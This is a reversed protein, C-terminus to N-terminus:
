INNNIYDKLEVLLNIIKEQMSRSETSINKITEIMKGIVEVYGQYMCSQLLVEKRIKTYIKRNMKSIQLMGLMFRGRRKTYCDILEVYGITENINIPLPSSIKHGEWFYKVQYQSEGKEVYDWLMFLNIYKNNWEICGNPALLYQKELKLDWYDGGLRKNCGKKTLTMNGIRRVVCSWLEMKGFLYTSHEYLDCISNSMIVNERTEKTNDIGKRKITNNQWIYGPVNQMIMGYTTFFSNMTEPGMLTTDDLCCLAYRCVNVDDKKDQWDWLERYIERILVCVKTDKGEGSGDYDFKNKQFKYILMKQLSTTGCYSRELILDQNVIFQEDKLAEELRM